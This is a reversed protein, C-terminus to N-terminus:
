NNIERMGKTLTKVDIKFREKDEIRIEYYNNYADVELVLSGKKGLKGAKIKLMEIMEDTLIM